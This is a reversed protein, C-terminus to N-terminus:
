CRLFKMVVNILALPVTTSTFEERHHGDSLTAYLSVGDEARGIHWHAKPLKEHILELCADVSSSYDRHAVGLAKAVAQDLAKSAGTTSALLIKLNSKTM